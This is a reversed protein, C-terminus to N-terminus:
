GTSARPSSAISSAFEEAPGGARHGGGRASRGLDSRPGAHPRADHDAPISGQERVLGTGLAAATPAAAAVTGARAASRWENVPALHGLEVEDTSFM